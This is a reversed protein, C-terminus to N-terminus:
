TQKECVSSIKVLTNQTLILLFVFKHKQLHFAGSYEAGVCYNLLRLSVCISEELCKVLEVFRLTNCDGVARVFDFIICNLCLATIKSM